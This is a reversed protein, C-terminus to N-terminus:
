RNVEELFSKYILEAQSTLEVLEEYSHKSLPKHFKGYKICWNEFREKSYKMKFVFLSYIKRRMKNEPSNKWDEKDDLKFSTKIWNLFEQYERYSLSKLSNKKGETFETILSRRDANFGINKLRNEIAFYAKYM